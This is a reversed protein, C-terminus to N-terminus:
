LFSAVPANFSSCSRLRSSRRVYRLFRASFFSVTIAEMVSCSFIVGSSLFAISSAIVMTASSSRYLGYRGFLFVLAVTAFSFPSWPRASMMMSWNRSWGRSSSASLYMFASFSTRVASSAMAPAMSIIASFM